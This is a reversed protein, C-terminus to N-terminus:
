QSGIQLSVRAGLVAIFDEKPEDKAQSGAVMIVDVESLSLTSLLPAGGFSCATLGLALLTCIIYKQGGM